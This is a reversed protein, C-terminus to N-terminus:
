YGICGRGKVGPLAVSVAAPWGGTQAHPAAPSDRIPNGGERLLWSFHGGPAPCEVGQRESLPRLPKLATHFYRGVEVLEEGFALM